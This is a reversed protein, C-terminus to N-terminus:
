VVPDIATVNAVRFSRWESRDLCFVSLTEPRYPRTQHHEQSERLPMAEDRLTCPMTRSEGSVKTFTITLDQKGLIHRLFGNREDDTALQSYQEM